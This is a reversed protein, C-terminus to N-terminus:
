GVMINAPDIGFYANAKFFGETAARTPGSTMIYWPVIGSGAMRELATIREAQYQFLSKGSPLGIDYCGKPDTSGLRTGQGGALLIVAVKSASALELGASKWAALQNPTATTTSELATSPLPTVAAATSNSATSTAITKQFIKNAREV